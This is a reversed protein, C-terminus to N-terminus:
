NGISIFETCVSGQRWSTCVSTVQHHGWGWCVLADNLEVEVVKMNPEHVRRTRWSPSWFILISQEECNLTAACRFSFNVTTVVQLWFRKGLNINFITKLFSQSAMWCQKVLKPELINVHWEIKTQASTNGHRTNQPQVLVCTNRCKAKMAFSPWLFILVFKRKEQEVSSNQPSAVRIPAFTKNKHKKNTQSPINTNTTIVSYCPLQAPAAGPKPLPLPPGLCRCRTLVPTYNKKILHMTGDKSAACQQHLPLAAVGIKLFAGSSFTEPKTKVEKKRTKIFLKLAFLWMSLTHRPSHM